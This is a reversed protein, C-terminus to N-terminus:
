QFLNRDLRLPRRSPNALMKLNIRLGLFGKKLNGFDEKVEQAKQACQSSKFSTKVNRPPCVGSHLRCTNPPRVMEREGERELADGSGKRRGNISLQSTIERNETAGLPNFFKLQKALLIIADMFKVAPTDKQEGSKTATGNKKRYYPM